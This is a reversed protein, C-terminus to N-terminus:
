VAGRRDSVEAIAIANERGWIAILEALEDQLTRASELSKFELTVAIESEDVVPRWEIPVSGVPRAEDLKTICICRNGNALRGQQTHLMGHGYILKAPFAREQFADEWSSLRDLSALLQERDKSLDADLCWARLRELGRFVMDKPSMNESEIM